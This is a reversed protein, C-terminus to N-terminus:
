RFKRDQKLAAADAERRTKFPGLIPRGRRFTYFGTFRANFDNRFYLIRYM